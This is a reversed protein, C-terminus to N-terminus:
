QAVFLDSYYPLESFRQTVTEPGVQRLMRCRPELMCGMARSTVVGNKAFEGGM